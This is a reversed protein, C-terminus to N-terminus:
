TLLKKLVVKEYLDNLNILSTDFKISVEPTLKSRASHLRLSFKFKNDFELIMVNNKDYTISTIKTPLKYTKTFDYIEVNKLKNLILYYRDKGKIFKYYEVLENQKLNMLFSETLKYIPVYLKTKIDKVLKFKKYKIVKNSELGVEEKKMFKNSENMEGVEEKKMFKNSENMEGEYFQKCINKYSEKFANYRDDSKLIGCQDSLNGPRQSKSYLKNNKISLHINRDITKIAIDAVVGRQGKKDDMLSLKEVDKINLHTIVLEAVMSYDIRQKESIKNWKEKYSNEINTSIKRLVKNQDHSSDSIKEILNKNKITIFIAYELAKGFLSCNAM